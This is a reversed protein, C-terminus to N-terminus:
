RRLTGSLTGTVTRVPEPSTLMLRKRPEARTSVEAPSM